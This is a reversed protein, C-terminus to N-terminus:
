DPGTLLFGYKPLTYLKAQRLPKWQILVFIFCVFELSRLPCVPTRDWSAMHGPIENTIMTYAEVPILRRNIQRQDRRVIGDVTLVRTSM